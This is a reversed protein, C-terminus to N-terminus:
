MVGLPVYLLNNIATSMCCLKTFDGERAATLAAEDVREDVVQERAGLCKSSAVARQVAWHMSIAAGFSKSCM